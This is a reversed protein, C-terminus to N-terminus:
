ALNAASFSKGEGALASTVLIMRNVEGSRIPGLLNRKVHRFESLRQHDQDAPVRLALERAMEETIHIDPHAAVRSPPMQLARQRATTATDVRASPVATTAPAARAKDLAKEILSM